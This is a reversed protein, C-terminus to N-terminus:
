PDPQQPATSTNAGDTRRRTRREYEVPSELYRTYPVGARDMMRALSTVTWTTFRSFDRAMSDLVERQGQLAERMGHVEEELKVIREGQTRPPPPVAQPMEEDENGGGPAVLAEEAVGGADGEQRAPGAPVWAWTDGFEAYIQLRVLETMDIIPLVHSIFMLGQLREETLLRFHNALRAVFQGGLILAGSKRGAAFRRLYRALLYPINVSGVDMGRLYFLNTVTVKEPAQSRGAISCAILRHCLKLIPDRISTYSPTTSFFERVSSIRIWYDRLDGKNPIQRVNEAWYASFGVTEMEEGTNLGLALIFQMWSLRRRARGLLFHLAGATDLDLVAKEFRFTSFFELILERVLLGRIDFLQRWARSTFVGHGQADSHEMLMRSSLGEVILDPIGRFDFVQVERRYIKALRMEFDVINGEIYQLGEFRLYQHRQDRPRHAMHRITRPMRLMRACDGDKYYRKPDFSIGFPVYLNKILNFLMGNVFHNWAVINVNLGMIFSGKIFDEKIKDHSEELLKNTNENGGLSQIMDIENDDSGKDPKQDDPYNINFPFLDNFYLVSQEAEDYESLSTEDKLDFKDIHQPCLTPETSFDSKSTLADNYVIAPFENKFDKFFDLDDICSVSPEPSSFLPKNVKENDIESDTKLDNTSIIKYSFSNKDFVITYDEDDSEDFSIRFDIENNNLSSVTPECSPTENSTLSDNFVIAPFKIEVSKLDLVDEDYWIKGYKATEWNFVKEHKRAKEEELRIYEEM